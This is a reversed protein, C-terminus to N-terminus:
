SLVDIQRVGAPRDPNRMGHTPCWLVVTAAPEGREFRAMERVETERLDRAREPCQGGGIDLAALLKCGSGREVRPALPRREGQKVTRQVEQRNHVDHLRNMRLGRGESIRSRPNRFRRRRARRPGQACAPRRSDNADVTMGPGDVLAPPGITLEREAALCPDPVSRRGGSAVEPPTIAAYVSLSSASSRRRETSIARSSRSGPPSSDQDDLWNGPRDRRPPVLGGRM